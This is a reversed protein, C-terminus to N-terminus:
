VQYLNCLYYFIVLELVKKIYGHVSVLSSPQYRITGIRLTVNRGNM